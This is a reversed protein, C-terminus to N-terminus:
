GKMEKFEALGEEVGEKFANFSETFTLTGEFKCYIAYAILMLVLVLEYLVAFVMYVPLLVTIMWRKPLELYKESVTSGVKMWVDLIKDMM